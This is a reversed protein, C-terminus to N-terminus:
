LVPGMEKMMEQHEAWLERGTCSCVRKSNEWIGASRAIVGVLQDGVSISRGIIDWIDLSETEGILQGRGDKGINIQGLQKYVGGASKSGQSLDGGERISVPYTGEPFGALTIEYFCGSPDVQVLRALGRVDNTSVDQHHMDLICVAAGIETLMIVLSSCSNFGWLWCVMGLVFISNIVMQM